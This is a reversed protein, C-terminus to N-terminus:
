DQRVIGHKKMRFRLTSPNLGLIKAAGNPGSIRWSTEKLVALIHQREVEHLSTQPNQPILPQPEISAPAGLETTLRLVSDTATIVARELVNKLERVNGPWDYAMLREMVQSPIQDIQKGISLAFQPVFHQVLQPIDERRKRLPPVSIPYVNLRYFLDPRFRGAAMEEELNRNTAAIVRVDVTLSETGGVREFKGDQLVHLLKVQAEPPLESVEDLFLTGGDALEFRGKRQQLAGTFAGREHGFLESELLTPQLAACNLKVFPKGSRRSSDHIALSVLEKGTGTEGTILVTSETEAVQKIRNLVYLLANSRGVIGKFFRVEQIQEKLYVNEDELRNKLAELEKLANDREIEIQKREQIDTTAELVSVVNGDSDKVPLSIVHYWRQNLMNQFERVHVEGDEFAVVSQCGECPTTRDEAVAYCYKGILNEDPFMKWIMANAWIVRMNRDLLVLGTNLTSLVVNMREREDMLAQKAEERETINEGMSLTGTLKGSVDYLGVNSWNVLLMEGSKLIIQNQYNSRIGGQTIAKRFLAKVQSRETEPLFHDFWYKGLVEESKFGTLRTFYPNIFNVRGELDLGVMLLELNEMLSRWRRENAQVENSLKSSRVVEAVLNASMVLILGLFTYTLLAPPDMIGLDILTGHLYELGVFLFIGAGLTVVQQKGGRRWLQILSAITLYIMLLWGIDAVFRWPNAKGSAYVLREGWPMAIQFLRDIEYYLVGFPFILNVVLAVAYFVTVTTALRMRNSGTFFVIFWTLSIWIIGQFSIQTKLAANFAPITEARYMLTEYYASGAMCFSMLAFFFDAKQEMRRIFIVIHIFALTLCIGFVVFNAVIIQSM